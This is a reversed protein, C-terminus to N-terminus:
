HVKSSSRVKTKCNRSSQIMWRDLKSAPCVHTPLFNEILSFLSKGKCSVIKLGDCMVRRFGEWLIPVVCDDSFDRAGAFRHHTLKKDPIRLLLIIIHTEVCWNIDYPCRVWRLLPSMMRMLRNYSHWYYLWAIRLNILKKRPKVRSSEWLTVCSVGSRAKM